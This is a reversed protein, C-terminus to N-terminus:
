DDFRKTAKKERVPRTSAATKSELLAVMKPTHKTVRKKDAPAALAEAQEEGDINLYEARQAHVVKKDVKPGPAPLSESDVKYVIQISHAPWITIEGPPVDIIYSNPGHRSLVTFVEPSWVNEHAKRFRDKGSAKM